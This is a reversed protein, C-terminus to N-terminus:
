SRKEGASSFLRALGRVILPHLAREPRARGLSTTTSASSRAYPTPSKASPPAPKVARLIYTVLNNDGRRPAAAGRDLARLAEATPRPTAPPASPAVEAVRERKAPRTWTTCARPRRSAGVVFDNVGVVIRQKTEVSRQYEYARREIERQPFGQEIAALMGGLEDIREIYDSAGAEIQNTLAEVAYSGGLADVLDAVGSEHALM